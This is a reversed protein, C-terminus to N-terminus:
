VTKKLAQRRKIDNQIAKTLNSSSNACALILGKFEEIKAFLEKLEAKLAARKKGVNAQEKKTDKDEESSSGSGVTIKDSPRKISHDSALRALAKYDKEIKNKKFEKQDKWWTAIEAYSDNLDRTNSQFDENWIEVQRAEGLDKDSLGDIKQMSAFNKKIWTNYTAIGKRAAAESEVVGKAAKEAKKVEVGIAMAM